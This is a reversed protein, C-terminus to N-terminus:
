SLRRGLRPLVYGLRMLGTGIVLFLGVRWLTDIAALDVTLLKVLLVALTVLGLVRFVARDWTLGVVIAGVAAVAWLLSVVVQGQPGHVFLVALWTVALVWAVVILPTAPVRNVLPRVTTAITNGSAFETTSAAAFLAVIAVVLGLALRDSWRLPDFLGVILWGSTWLWAVVAALVAQLTLLLDDLWAALLATTVASVALAVLAVEGHGFAAVAAFALLVTAGAQAATLAVPVRGRLGAATAGFAVALALGGLGLATSGALVDLAALTTWLWLPVVLVLRLDLATWRNRAVAADWSTVVPGAWGLAGVVVAGATAMGVETSNLEERDIVLLLLLVAALPTILVRVAVWDRTWGLATAAMATAVLWTGPLLPAFEDLSGVVAFMAFIQTALVVVAVSEMGLWVACAVVVVAAVALAVLAPEHAVLDLGAASAGAACSPLVIAAGCALAVAWRPNRPALGFAGALLAFGIATAGILQVWPGIWGRDIATAVFFVSALVVLGLGAWRLLFETSIWDPRPRTGATAPPGGPPPFTVQPPAPWPAPAPSGAPPAMAPVQAPAPAAHPPPVPAGAHDVQAQLRAVQAELAAVRATLERLHDDPGVM